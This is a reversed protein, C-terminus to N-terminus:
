HQYSIDEKFYEPEGEDTLMVYEHLPYRTSHRREGTSRRLKLEVPPMPPELPAQKIPEM